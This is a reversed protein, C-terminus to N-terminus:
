PIWHRDCSATTIGTASQLNFCAHTYNNKCCPPRGAPSPERPPSTARTFERARARANPYDAPPASAMQSPHARLSPRAPPYSTEYPPTKKDTLCVIPSQMRARRPIVAQSSPRFLRPILSSRFSKPPRVSSSTSAHMCAHPSQFVNKAQMAQSPM